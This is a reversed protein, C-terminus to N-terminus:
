GYDKSRRLPIAVCKCHNDRERQAEVERTLQPGNLNGGTRQFVPEYAVADCAAIACM